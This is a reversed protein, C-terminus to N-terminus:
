AYAGCVRLLVVLVSRSKQKVPSTTFYYGIGFKWYTLSCRLILVYDLFFSLHYIQRSLKYSKSARVCMCLIYLQKDIM